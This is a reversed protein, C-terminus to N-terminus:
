RVASDQLRCRLGLSAALGKSMKRPAQRFLAVASDQYQVRNDIPNGRPWGRPRVTDKGGRSIDERLMKHGAEPSYSPPKRRMAKTRQPM